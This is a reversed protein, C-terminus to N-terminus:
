VNQHRELHLLTAQTYLFFYKRIKNKVNFKNCQRLFTYEDIFLNLSINLVFYSMKRLIVMSINEPM